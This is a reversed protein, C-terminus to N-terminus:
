SGALVGLYRGDEAHFHELSSPRRPAGRCGHKSLEEMGVSGPRAYFYAGDLAYSLLQAQEFCHDRHGFFGSAVLFNHVRGDVLGAKVWRREEEISALAFGLAAPQMSAELAAAVDSRGLFVPLLEFLFARAQDDFTGSDARALAENGLEEIQDSWKKSKM